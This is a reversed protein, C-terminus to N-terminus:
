ERNGWPSWKLFLLFTFIPTGIAGQSIHTDRLQADGGFVHTDRLEERLEGERLEGM